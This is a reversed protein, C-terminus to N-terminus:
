QTADYAAYCSILEVRIQEARQTERGLFAADERYLIPANCQYGTKGDTSAKTASSVGPREPFQRVWNDLFSMRQQIRAIEDNKDKTIKAVTETMAQEKARYVSITEALKATQQSKEQNWQTQIIRKGDVRGQFYVLVMIFVASIAILTKPYLLFNM